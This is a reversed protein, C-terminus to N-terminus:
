ARDALMRDVVKRSIMRVYCGNNIDVKENKNQETLTLGYYERIDAPMNGIKRMDAKPKIIDKAGSHSNASRVANAANATFRGQKAMLSRIAKPNAAAAAAAAANAYMGNMSHLGGSLKPSASSAAAGAAGADAPFMGLLNEYLANNEEKTPTM